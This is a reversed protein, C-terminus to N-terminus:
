YISSPDAILKIGYIILRADGGSIHETKVKVETLGSEAPITIEGMDFYKADQGTKSGINWEKTVVM